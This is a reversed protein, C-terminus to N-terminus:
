ACVIDAYQLLESDTVFHELCDLDIPMEVELALEDAAVGDTASPVARITGPLGPRYVNRVACPAGFGFDATYHSAHRMDTLAMDFRQLTKAALGASTKDKLTAVRSILDLVKAETVGSHAARVLSSLRPLSGAAVADTVLIPETLVGITANGQFLPSLPPNFRSRLDVTQALITTEDHAPKYVKLRAATVCKWILACIADYTSTKDHESSAAQKIRRIGDKHFHIVVPQMSKAQVSLNPTSPRTSLSDVRNETSTRKGMLRGRDSEDHLSTRLPIKKKHALHMANSAWQDIFACMAAGDVGVHHFGYTLIVGGEIWTAQFKALPRNELTAKMRPIGPPYNSKGKLTEHLKLDNPPFGANKLKALSSFGSVPMSHHVIFPIAAVKTRILKLEGHEKRFVANLMRYHDLTASLSTLMRGLFVSRMSPKEIPYVLMTKLFVPPMTYDLDSLQWSEQLPDKQWSQSRVVYLDYDTSPKHLTAENTGFHRKLTSLSAHLPFLSARSRSTLIGAIRRTNQGLIQSANTMFRMSPRIVSVM